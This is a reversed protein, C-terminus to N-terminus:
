RNSKKIVLSVIYALGCIVVISAGTPLKYAAFYYSVLLGIISSLVSITVSFIVYQKMNKSINKSTAAPLIFLSNIM